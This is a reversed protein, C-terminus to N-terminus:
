DGLDTITLIDGALGFGINLGTDLIAELELYISVAVTALHICRWRMSLDAVKCAAEALALENGPDLIGARWKCLGAGPGDTM